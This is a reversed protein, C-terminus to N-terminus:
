SSMEWIHGFPDQISVTRPGWPRNIPGNLLEIHNAQLEIAVADVDDVLLTYVARAGSPVGISAPAILEPTAAVSLLNLYTSGVRYLVSDADENVLDQGFARAYFDKAVPLDEVILTIAFLGKSVDM